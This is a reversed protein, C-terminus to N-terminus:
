SLETDIPTADPVPQGMNDSDEDDNRTTVDFDEDVVPAADLNHSDESM